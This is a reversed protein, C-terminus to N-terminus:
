CEKGVRREESRVSRVDVWLLKCDGEVLSQWNELSVDEHTEAQTFLYTKIM